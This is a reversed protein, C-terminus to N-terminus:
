SRGIAVAIRDLAALVENVDVEGLWVASSPEAVEMAVLPLAGRRVVEALDHHGRGTLYRLIVRFRGETNLGVIRKRGSPTGVYLNATSSQLDVTIRGATDREVRQFCELVRKADAVAHPADSQMRALFADFTLKGRRVGSPEDTVVREVEIRAKPTEGEVKVRVVQRVEAVVTGRLEPVLLLGAGSGVPRFLNLDVMALDWEATLHRGLMGESLRLARPDMADGAIVLLFRGAAICEEIDALEPTYEGGPLPPLDELLVNQFAFAYDLVQAVVTRRKEPNYSLKTEVIAIRGRSSVLLVDIPGADVLVETGWPMWVEDSLLRGAERCPGIVLEPDAHIADRFWSEPLSMERATVREYARAPHGSAGEGASAFLVSGVSKM